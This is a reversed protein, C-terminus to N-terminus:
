SKGRYYFKLEHWQQILGRWASRPALRLSLDTYLPDWCRNGCACVRERLYQYEKGYWIDELTHERVNIGADLDPCPAVNGYPDISCSAYGAYCTFRPIAGLSVALKDLYTPHNTLLSTKKLARRLREVEKGAEELQEASFLLPACEAAPKDGHLLNFHAPAFKLQRVGLSEAFPVMDALGRYNQASITCNIGLQVGPAYSRMNRIASVVADFSGEGRIADHIGRHHSELSISLSHLGSQQLTTSVSRDIMSGNSCLHSAIGYRNGLRIIEYVLDGRCLAEGGSILMLSTKLRHASALITKYEDLILEAGQPQHRVGCMVCHLNCRYTIFLLLIPLTRPPQCRYRAWAVYAYKNLDRVIRAFNKRFAFLM